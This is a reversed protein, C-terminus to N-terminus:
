LLNLKKKAASLRNVKVNLSDTITGTIDKVSMGEDMEERQKRYTEIEEDSIDMMQQCQVFSRKMRQYLMESPFIFQSYDNDLVSELTEFSGYKSSDCIMTQYLRRLNYFESVNEVFLVNGITNISEISSSFIHEVTENYHLMPVMSFLQLYTTYDFLSTDEAIQIQLDFSERLNSNVSEIEQLSNSMDYMVMMVLERKEKRENKHNIIATIGFTLVISITTALLSLLFNKWTATKM